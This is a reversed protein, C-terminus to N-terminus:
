VMTPSDRWGTRTIRAVSNSLTFTTPHLVFRWDENPTVFVSLSSSGRRTAVRMAGQGM